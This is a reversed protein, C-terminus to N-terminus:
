ALGGRRRFARRRHRPQDRHVKGTCHGHESHEGHVDAGEWARRRRRRVRQAQSDSMVIHVVNLHGWGGTDDVSGWDPHPQPEEIRHTETLPHLQRRRLCSTWVDASRM